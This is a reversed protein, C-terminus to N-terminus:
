FLTEMEEARHQAAQMAQSVLALLGGDEFAAIAAATTGGKSTVQARLTALDTQPNNIVMQAAGLATEQVLLRAAETTFGMREAEEIMAQMFLFFYAPGSGSTATVGNIDAETDVWVTKGAAQLLLEASNRDDQSVSVPAYLGTVGLGILSPTNPMCRVINAHGNMLSSLRAINVGAAISIVLKDGFDAISATLANLMDAMFQPKVALVIIDAQKAAEANDTGTVIGYEDSLEKVKEADLDTAHIHAAPINSKILGSILSRAMNGGGIFAIKKDKM